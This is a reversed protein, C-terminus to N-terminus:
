DWGAGIVTFNTPSKVDRIRIEFHKNNQNTFCLRATAHEHFSFLDKPKDGLRVAEVAGRGTLFVSFNTSSWSDILAVRESNTKTVLDNAVTWCILRLAYGRLKQHENWAYFLVGAVIFAALIPLHRKQM